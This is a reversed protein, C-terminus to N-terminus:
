YSHQHPSQNLWRHKHILCTHEGRHRSYPVALLHKIISLHGRYLLFLAFKLHGYNFYLLFLVLGISCFDIHPGVQEFLDFCIAFFVSFRHLADLGLFTTIQFHFLVSSLLSLFQHEQSQLRLALDSHIIVCM